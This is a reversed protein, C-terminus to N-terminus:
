FRYNWLLMPGSQYYESVLDDDPLDWELHRYGFVIDSSGFTYGVGLAAQWTLDSQGAGVDFQYAAFWNDNFAARGNVGIVADWYDQDGDVEFSQGPGGASVDLTLDAELKLYRAGFTGYMAYNPTEVLKYGAGFNVITTEVDADAVADITIGEAPDGPAVTFSADGGQRVSAYSAEGYTMWPGNYGRLGFMFAVNLNEVLEDFGLEFEKGAAEGGVETGWVYLQLEYNWANRQIPDLFDQAVASQAVCAGAAMAAAGILKKM